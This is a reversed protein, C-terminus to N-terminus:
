FKTRLYVLLTLLAAFFHLQPTADKIQLGIGITMWILLEASVAMVFPTSTYLRKLQLSQLLFTSLDVDLLGAVLVCFGFGLWGVSVINHMTIVLGEIDM